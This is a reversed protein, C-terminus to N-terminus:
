FRRYSWQSYMESVSFNGLFYTPYTCSFELGLYNLTFSLLLHLKCRVPKCDQSVLFVLLWLDAPSEAYFALRQSLRTLLCWTHDTGGTLTLIHSTFAIRLLLCLDWEFSIWCLRQKISGFNISSFPACSWFVANMSSANCNMFIRIYLVAYSERVWGHKKTTTTTATPKQNTKKKQNSNALPMLPRHTFASQYPFVCYPCTRKIVAEKVFQPQSAIRGCNFQLSRQLTM